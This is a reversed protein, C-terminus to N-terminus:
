RPRSKLLGFFAGQPDGVIAFRGGPFDQPAMMDRAGADLARKYADDVDEVAFYVMWYSPTQEPVMPNMEMAGAISQGGQEFEVYGPAGATTERHVPTWGFAQKYFPLDNDLGRANLEAWEFRGPGGTGFGGMATRQWASIFAGAPDQFVAMRGQDGVDFAPAVVTGGAAKVRDGLADADDTSVYVSWATPAGQQAPGIGAVDTGGIKALAYGGYQPDPSVEIDWGFLKRYFDRSDEPDTTGLDVWAFRNPAWSVSEM